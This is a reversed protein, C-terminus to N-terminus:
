RHNGSTPAPSRPGLGLYAARIAPDTALTQSPGAAVLRGSELVFARTALALAGRANQEVLLVTVGEANVRRVVRFIERALRPALGLSPEDLLLLRPRAILGRAIALM